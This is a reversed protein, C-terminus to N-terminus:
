DRALKRLYVSCVQGISMGYEDAFNNLAAMIGDPTLEGSIERDMEEALEEEASTFPMQKGREVIDELQEMTIGNQTLLRDMMAKGYGDDEVVSPNMAMQYDGEVGEWAADYYIHREQDTLEQGYVSGSFLWAGLLVIILGLRMKM